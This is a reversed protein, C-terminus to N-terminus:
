FNYRHPLSYHHLEIAENTQIARKELSVTPRATYIKFSKRTKWTAVWDTQVLIRSIIWCPLKLPGWDLSSHSTCSDSFVFFTLLSKLRNDGKPAKTNTIKNPFPSATQKLWYFFLLLPNRWEVQCRPVFCFVLLSFFKLSLSSRWCHVDYQLM